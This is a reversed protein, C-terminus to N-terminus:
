RNWRGPQVSAPKRGFADSQDDDGTPTEVGAFPAVRFNGGPFNNKFLTYRGLLSIDGLGNASHTRREGSITTKLDKEVYPIVGFLALDSTVGYGLVSVVSWATRDRDASSPDDGSQELVFQERVIFEGEAVPLATNFTIPASWVTGASSLVAIAAGAGTTWRTWRKSNAIRSAV